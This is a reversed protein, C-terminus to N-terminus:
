TVVRQGTNCREGVKLFLNVLITIANVQVSVILKFPTSWKACCARQNGSCTRWCFTLQVARVVVNVVARHVVPIVIPVALNVFVVDVAFVVVSVTHGVFVPPSTVGLGLGFEDLVQGFHVVVHAITGAFELGGQRVMGVRFENEVRPTVARSTFTGVVSLKTVVSLLHRVHGIVGVKLGRVEVRGRTVEAIPM